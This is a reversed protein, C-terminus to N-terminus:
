FKESLKWNPLFTNEVNVQMPSFHSEGMGVRLLIGVFWEAPSVERAGGKKSDQKEDM